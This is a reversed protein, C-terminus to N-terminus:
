SLTDAAGRAELRIRERTSDKLFDSQEEGFGYTIDSTSSYTQVVIPPVVSFFHTGPQLRHAQEHEHEHERQLVVLQVFAHDIPCLYAFAATRLHCVLHQAGTCKITYATTCLPTGAPHLHPNTPLVHFMNKNSVCHGTRDADSPAPAFRASLTNGIMLVDWNSPLAHFLYQLRRELTWEMDIDDELVIALDDAGEAIKRLVDYHSKWCAAQQPRIPYMDKPDPGYFNMGDAGHNTFMPLRDDPVPIPDLPPLNSEVLPLTWLDAGKLGLPDSDRQIDDAWEFKFPSPDKRPDLEHVRHANRWWWLREVITSVSEESYHMANHWTLNIDLASALQAMEERRDARSPLNIVYIRGAGLRRSHPLSDTPQMSSLREHYSLSTKATSFNSSDGLVQGLKLAAQQIQYLVLLCITLAAMGAVHRRSM